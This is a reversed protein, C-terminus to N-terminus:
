SRLKKPKMEKRLHWLARRMKLVDLGLRHGRCVCYVSALSGSPSAPAQYSVNPLQRIVSDAEAAVGADGQQTLAEQIGSM